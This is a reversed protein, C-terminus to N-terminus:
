NRDSKKRRLGSCIIDVVAVGLAALAVIFIVLGGWQEMGRYQPPMGASVLHRAFAGV